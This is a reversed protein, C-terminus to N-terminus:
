QVLHQKRTPTHRTRPSHTYPPLICFVKAIRGCVCQLPTGSSRTRRNTCPCTRFRIDARRARTAGVSPKYNIPKRTTSASHTARASKGLPGNLARPHAGPRARPACPAAVPLLSRPARFQGISCTSGIWDLLALRVPGMSGIWDVLVWRVYVTSGVIDFRDLRVSEVSCIWDFRDMRASGISDNWDLLDLRVLAM